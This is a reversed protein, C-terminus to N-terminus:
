DNLYIDEWGGGWRTSVANDYFIRYKVHSFASYESLNQCSVLKLRILINSSFM